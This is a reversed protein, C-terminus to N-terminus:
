SAGYRARILAYVARLTMAEGGEPRGPRNKANWAYLDFHAWNGAKEVFRQLFLAATIAGAFGNSSAHCIDAIRSDLYEAYPTWLPLRWLPDSHIQGQRALDDALAQDPTFLAPLDPGLAVRAAGTLTAFDLLLDPAEEDALALADCLINRGEADTNDIEVALGKRTAMVDGPRYANGSIANDVAPVLIRLRVPLKTAMIWLGLGLAHAAGGMDKKMLRMGNGTKSNLGGSDFCVGKGVLTVRPHREDGWAIDILRPARTSARGVTHIAPFGEKLLDDGVIEQFRADMEEAVARAAGALEAPGLDNAPTNILDRVLFHAKIAAALAAEDVNEPLVLRPNEERNPRYRTFRYRGLAWGLAAMQAEAATLENAIRYDAVPLSGALGGWLHPDALVSERGLGLIVAAIDCEPNPVISLRSRGPIYGTAKLWAREEPTRSESWLLWEPETVGFIPRAPETGPAAFFPFRQTM